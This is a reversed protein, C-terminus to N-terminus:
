LSQQDLYLIKWSENYSNIKQLLVLNSWKQGIPPISLRQVTLSFAKLKCTEWYLGYSGDFTDSNLTIATLTVWNIYGNASSYQLYFVSKWLLCNYWISLKLQKQLIGKRPNWHWMAQGWPSNVCLGNLSSSYNNNFIRLYFALNSKRLVTSLVYFYLLTYATSSFLLCVVLQYRSM